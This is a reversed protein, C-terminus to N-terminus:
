IRCVALLPFMLLHLSCSVGLLVDYACSTRVEEPSLQYHELFEEVLQAKHQTANLESQLAQM